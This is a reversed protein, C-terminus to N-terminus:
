LPRGNVTDGAGPSSRFGIQTIPGEDNYRNSRAQMAPSGVSMRALAVAELALIAGLFRIPQTQAM